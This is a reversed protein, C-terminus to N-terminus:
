FLPFSNKSVKKNRKASVACRDVLVFLDKTKESSLAQRKQSPRRRKEKRVALNAPTRGAPRGHFPGWIEEGKGHATCAM